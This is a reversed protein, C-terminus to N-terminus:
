RSIDLESVRVGAMNRGEVEVLQLCWPLGKHMSTSLRAVGLKLRTAEYLQRVENYDNISVLSLHKELIGQATWFSPFLLVQDM